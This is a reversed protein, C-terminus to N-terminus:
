CVRQQILALMVAEEGHRLDFYEGWYNAPVNATVSQQRSYSLNYNIKNLKLWFSIFVIELRKYKVIGIFSMGLSLHALHPSLFGRLRSIDDRTLQKSFAPEALEICFERTVTVFLCVSV